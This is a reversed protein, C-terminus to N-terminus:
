VSPYSLEGIGLNIVGLDEIPTKNLGHIRSSVLKGCNSCEVDFYVSGNPNFISGGSTYIVYKHCHYCFIGLGNMGELQALTCDKFKRAIM